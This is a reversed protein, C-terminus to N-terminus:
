FLCSESRSFVQRWVARFASICCNESLRFTLACRIPACSSPSSQAACSNYVALFPYSFAMIFFYIRANEMVDPAVNGFVLHLIWYNGALAVLTMVIALASASLLLQQSARVSYKYNKAGLNQSIVVSGGATLATFLVVLLVNLTDVLSVGSVAAEGASSVMVTDAMGVFISLFQEIILPIILSLLQRRTFLSPASNMFFCRATRTKQKKLRSYSFVFSYCIQQFLLVFTM